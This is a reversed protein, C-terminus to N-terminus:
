GHLALLQDPKVLLRQMGMQKPTFGFALGMLQTFYIIPLGYKQGRDAEITQQRTDLNAQCMPCAVVLAQAGAQRAAELVQGGLDVVIATDSAAFGGGCCEAKHSWPVTEAGLAQLLNDLAMPQEPDDFQAVARPRTILCGYYAALKPGKLPKVVNQKIKDLGVEELMVQLLHEVQVAEAGESIIGLDQLSERMAPDGLELSATKLRSFCGACPTTIKDLKMDKVLNLNRSNLGVALKHNLSHAATAGCCNWDTVERLDIGLRESVLRASIDYEHAMSHLSCGPYYAIAM